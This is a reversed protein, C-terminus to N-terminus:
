PAVFWSPKGEQRCIAIDADSPFVGYDDILASVPDFRGELDTSFREFSPMEVQPYGLDAFCAVVGQLYRYLSELQEQTFPPPDEVYSPDIERICDESAKRYTERETILGGGTITYNPGLTVPYGHDNLCAVLRPFFEDPLLSVPPWRPITSEETVESGTLPASGADLAADGCAVVVLTM